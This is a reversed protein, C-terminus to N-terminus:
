ASRMVPNNGIRSMEAHKNGENIQDRYHTEFKELADEDDSYRQIEAAGAYIYLTPWATLIANTDEDNLLKSDRHHYTVTVDNVSSMFINGNLTYEMIPKRSYYIQPTIYDLPQNLAGGTALSISNYNEPILQGTTWIETKENERLKADRGVRTRVLEEILPYLSTLDDRHTYLKWADKLANYNM